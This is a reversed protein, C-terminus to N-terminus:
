INKEGGSLFIAGLCAAVEDGGDEEETITGEAIVKTTRISTIKDREV